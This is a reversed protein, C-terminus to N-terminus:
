FDLTRLDFYGGSDFSNRILSHIFIEFDHNYYNHNQFYEKKDEVVYGMTQLQQIMDEVTITTHSEIKKNLKEILKAKVTNQNNLSDVKKKLVSIISDEKTTTNTQAFGKAYVLM